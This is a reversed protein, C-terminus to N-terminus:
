RDQSMRELMWYPYVRPPTSLTDLRAVEEAAIEWDVTKLNDTLQEKNRAGVIVSTVGPKRLLYNLAAQTITAGYKRATKELEDVIDFGKEEDFQLFQATPNSRRAGEPRPKGRRYKGTLFGGGLPSWPLIGLHQDLSLPVLENELDRAILSYFAQLTIFRELHQTDSIALAKMLQWGAFNSAGVYRVKGERVLDDLTRLTEELPTRPDFSHVQYLDIYDTGLRKLSANCSDIIHRRSLGVDNPGSGTRGRVKTALVVSNRKTGLAKGLLLESMGESYVDATDFFNIGGDIAINVLDDAEKQGVQGINAWYGKGGFTMAGFCLESVRVGTNGLFRTKM